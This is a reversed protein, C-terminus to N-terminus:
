QDLCLVLWKMWPSWTSHLVLLPACFAAIPWCYERLSGQPAVQTCLQLSTMLLQHRYSWLIAHVRFSLFIKFSGVVLQTGNPCSFVLSTAITNKQQQLMRPSSAFVFKDRMHGDEFSVWLNLSKIVLIQLNKTPFASWSWSNKGHTCDWM